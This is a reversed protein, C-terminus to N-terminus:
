SVNRIRKAALIHKCEFVEAHTSTYREQNHQYYSMCTCDLPNISGVYKLNGEEDVVNFCDPTVFQIRVDKSRQERREAFIQEKGLDM